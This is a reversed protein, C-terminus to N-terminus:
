RRWRERDELWFTVLCYAAGLVVAALCLFAGM